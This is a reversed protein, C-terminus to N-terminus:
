IKKIKDIAKASLHSKVFFDRVSIKSTDSIKNIKERDSQM